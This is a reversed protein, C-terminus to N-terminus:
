ECSPSMTGYVKAFKGLVDISSGNIADGWRKGTRDREAVVVGNVLIFVEDSFFTTRPDLKLMFDGFGDAEVFILRKDDKYRKPDKMFEDHPIPDDQCVKSGLVTQLAKVHLLSPMAAIIRNITAPMDLQYEGIPFDFKSRKM